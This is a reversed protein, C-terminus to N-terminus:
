SQGPMRTRVKAEGASQSQGPMRTRVKTECASQSQGPMRTRVKAEGASQSQGPMRTWSHDIEAKGDGLRTRAQPMLPVRKALEHDQPLETMWTDRGRPRSMEDPDEQVVLTCAMHGVVFHSICTTESVTSMVNRFRLFRSMLMFYYFNWLYQSHVLIYM